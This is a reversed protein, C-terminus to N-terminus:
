IQLIYSWLDANDNHRVIDYSLHSAVLKGKLLGMDTGLAIWMPNTPCLTASPCTELQTRHNAATLMMGGSCRISDYLMQTIFLPGM